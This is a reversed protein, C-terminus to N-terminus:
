PMNKDGVQFQILIVLYTTMSAFMTTILRRDLKFFQWPSITLPHTTLRLALMDIKTLMYTPLGKLEIRHLFYQIEKVQQDLQSCSSAVHYIQWIYVITKGVAFILETPSYKLAVYFVLFTRAFIMCFSTVFTLFLETDFHRNFSLVLEEVILYAKLCQELLETIHELKCSSNFIPRPSLDFNTHLPFSGRTQASVIKEMEVAIVRLCISYIKLYFGLFLGFLFYMSFNINWIFSEIYILANIHSSADMLGVTMQIRAVTMNLWFVVLFIGFVLSRRIEQRTRDLYSIMPESSGDFQPSTESFEALLRVNLQWFKLHKNYKFISLAKLILFSVMASYTVLGYTFTETFGKTHKELVPSYVFITYFTEGIILLFLNLIAWFLAFNHYHCRAEGWKNAKVYPHFGAIILANLLPKGIQLLKQELPFYPDEPKKNSIESM